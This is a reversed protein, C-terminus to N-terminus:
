LVSPNIIVPSSFDLTSRMQSVMHSTYLQSMEKAPDKGAQGIHGKLDDLTGDDALDMHLRALSLNEANHLLRVHRGATRGRSDSDWM